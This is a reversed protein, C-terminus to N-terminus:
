KLDLQESEVKNELYQHSHKSRHCGLLRKIAPEIGVGEMKKFAYKNSYSQIGYLNFRLWSKFSKVESPLSYAINSLSIDLM